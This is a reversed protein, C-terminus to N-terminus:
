DLLDYGIPYLPPPFPVVGAIRLDRVNLDQLRVLEEGIDSQKPRLQCFGVVTWIAEWVEAFFKGDAGHFCVSVLYHHNKRLTKPDYPQFTM